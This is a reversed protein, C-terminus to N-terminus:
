EDDFPHKAALYNQFLSSSQTYFLCLKMRVICVNAVEATVDAVINETTEKLRDLVHTEVPPRVTNVKKATQLNMEQSITNTDVKHEV